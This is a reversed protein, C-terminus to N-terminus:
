IEADDSMHPEDDIPFGEVLNGINDFDDEDENEYDDGDGGEMADVAQTMGVADEGARLLDLESEELLREVFDQESTTTEPEFLRIEGGPSLVKVNRYREMGTGAPILRGIIVNEKLGVLHDVKGKIAADTL